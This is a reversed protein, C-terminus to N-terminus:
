MCMQEIFDGCAEVIAEIQSLFTKYPHIFVERAIETMVASIKAGLSTLTNPPQESVEREVVSWM